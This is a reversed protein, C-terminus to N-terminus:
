FEGTAETRLDRSMVALFRRVIEENPELRWFKGDGGKKIWNYLRFLNKPGNTVHLPTGVLLFRTHPNIDLLSSVVARPVADAEEIAICLPTQSADRLLDLMKVIKEIKGSDQASVVTVNGIDHKQHHAMPYNPYIVAYVDERKCWEAILTTKGTRRGGVVVKIRAPDALIEEIMASNDSM